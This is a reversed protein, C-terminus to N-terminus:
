LSGNEKVTWLVTDLSTQPMSLQFEKTREKGWVCDIYACDDNIMLNRLNPLRKSIQTLGDRTM